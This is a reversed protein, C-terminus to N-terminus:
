DGDNQLYELHELKTERALLNCSLNLVHDSEHYPLHVRLLGLRDNITRDLGLRNVLLYVADIGGAAIPLPRYNGAPRGGNGDAAHELVAPEGAGETLVVPGVLRPNGPVGHVRETGECAQGSRGAYGEGSDGQARGASGM